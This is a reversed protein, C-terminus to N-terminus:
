LHTYTNCFCKKSFSWYLLIEYLLEGELLRRKPSHPGLPQFYKLTPKWNCMNESLSQLKTFPLFSSLHFSPITLLSEFNKVTSHFFIWYINLTRFHRKHIKCSTKYDESNQLIVEWFAPFPMERVRSKLELFCTGSDGPHKERKRQETQCDEGAGLKRVRADGSVCAEFLCCRFTRENVQPVIFM